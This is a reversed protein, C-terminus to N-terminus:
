ALAGRLQVLREVMPSPYRCESRRFSRQPDKLIAMRGADVVDFPPAVVEGGAAQVKAV